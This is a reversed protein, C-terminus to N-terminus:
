ETAGATRHCSLTFSLSNYLVAGTKLQFSLSLGLHGGSKYNADLYSPQRTVTHQASPSLATALVKTPVVSIVTSFM